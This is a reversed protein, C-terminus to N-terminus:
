YDNGQIHTVALRGLDGQSEETNQSINFISSNPHDRNKQNEIGRTNKCVKPVTGLARVVVLIVMEEYNYNNNTQVNLM